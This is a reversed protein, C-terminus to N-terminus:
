PRGNGKERRKRAESRLRELRTLADANQAVQSDEADPESGSTITLTVADGKSTIQEGGVPVHLRLGIGRYADPAVANDVSLPISVQEDGSRFTGGESRVGEPLGTLEVTAEGEFPELGVVKGALTAKGGVSLETDAIAVQAYGKRVNLPVMQTSAWMWNNEQGAVGMVYLQWDRPTIMPHATLKFTAEAEGPPIVEGSSTTIGPPLFPMTLRIEEDFGKDRVARVTLEWEGNRVIPGEPPIAELRFPLQDVVAIPVRDAIRTKLLTNGPNARLLDAFHYYGGRINTGEDEPRGVMEFLGGTLPADDAATFVVPFATTGAPITQTELTVGEPLQPIELAMRGNFDRTRIRVLAAFRNGRGVFIQQRYQGYLENPDQVRPLRVILWPNVTSCELRYVHLPSGAGLRDRIEVYYTGDSPVKVRLYSDPGRPEADAHETVRGGDDNANLRVGQQDYISIASDLPSRMRRAFIEVNLVQGEKAEFAYWDRDGPVSIVGCPAQAVSFRNAADRRDNPENELLNEHDSVRFPIPTPAHRGEPGLAFSFSRGPNKPVTVKRSYAGAGDGRFEVTLASDKAAGPPFIAQPRPFTGAVLVYHSQDNGEGLLERIEIEYRGTKEIAYAFMPDGVTFPHGTSEVLRKGADDFLTVVTDLATNGLRMALVEVRLIDGEALDLEYRDTDGHPLTGYYAFGPEIQQLNGERGEDPGGEAEAEAKLAHPVVYLPRYETLGSRTRLHGIHEGIRCDEAVRLIVRCTEQEHRIDVVEFGEEYFHLDLPDEMREGELILETTAGREIAGPVFRALRPSAAQSASVAILLCTVFTVKLIARRCM